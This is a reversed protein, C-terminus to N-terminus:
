AFTIAGPQCPRAPPRPCSFARSAQAAVHDGFPAPAPCLNSPQCTGVERIRCQNTRAGATKVDSVLKQPQRSASPAAALQPRAEPAKPLLQTRDQALRAIEDQAFGPQQRPQMIAPGTTQLQDPETILQTQRVQLSSVQEQVVPEIKATSQGLAAFISGGAVAGLGLVVMVARRLHPLLLAITSIM